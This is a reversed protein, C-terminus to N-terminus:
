NKQPIAQFQIDSQQRSVFLEHKELENKALIDIARNAPATSYVLQKEASLYSGGLLHRPYSM